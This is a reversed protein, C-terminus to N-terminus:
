HLTPDCERVLVCHMDCSYSINALSSVCQTRTLRILWISSRQWCNLLSSSPMRIPRATITGNDAYSLDYLPLTDAIFEVRTARTAAQCSARAGQGSGFPCSCRRCCGRLEAARCTQYTCPLLRMDNEPHTPPQKYVHLVPLRIDCTSHLTLLEWIRTSHLTLLEWTRISHLTLLWWIRTSHLTLLEWIRTSHLTLLEWTCPSHLTLLEWIRSRNVTAGESQIM